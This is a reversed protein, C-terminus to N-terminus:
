LSMSPGALLPMAFKPWVIYGVTDTGLAKGFAAVRAPPYMQDSTTLPNFDLADLGSAKYAAQMQEVPYIAILYRSSPRAHLTALLARDVLYAKDGGNKRDEPSLM